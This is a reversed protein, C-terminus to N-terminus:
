TARRQPCLFRLIRGHGFDQQNLRGRQTVDNVIQWDDGVDMGIDAVCRDLPDDLFTESVNRGHMRADILNNGNCNAAPALRWEVGCDARFHSREPFLKGRGM